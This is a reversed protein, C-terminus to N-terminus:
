RLGTIYNQLQEVLFELEEIMDRVVDGISIIGIMKDNEFVPLHRIRSDTMIEMCERVTQAPHVTILHATMVEELPVDEPKRNMLGVKRAHDRETFIGVVDDGKKVVLSGVKMEAMKELAEKVSADYSITWVDSGKFRLLHRVSNM